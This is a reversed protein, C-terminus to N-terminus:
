KDSIAHPADGCISEPRSGRGGQRLFEQEGKTPATDAARAYADAAERSRGLRRLLDARTAHFAYYDDLGLEDVLALAAGAGHVEGIAIARNLAVVPTPTIVLLQDYLAVSGKAACSGKPSDAPRENTCVLVHRQPKPM